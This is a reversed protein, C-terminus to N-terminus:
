LIPLGLRNMFRGSCAQFVQALPWTVDGRCRWFGRSM